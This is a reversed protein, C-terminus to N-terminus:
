MDRSGAARGCHLRLASASSTRVQTPTGEEDPNHPLVPVIDQLFDFLESNHIALAIDNRQLTRRPVGAGAGGVAGTASAGAASGMASHEPYAYARLTLDQVVSRDSVARGDGVLTLAAFRRESM